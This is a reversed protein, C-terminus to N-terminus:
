MTMQDLFNLHQILAGVVEYSLTITVAIKKDSVVEAIGLFTIVDPLSAESDPLRSRDHAPYLADLRYKTKLYRAIKALDDGTPQQM